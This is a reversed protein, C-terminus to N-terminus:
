RNTSFFEIVALLTGYGGRGWLRLQEQTIQTTGWGGVSNWVKESWFVKHEGVGM